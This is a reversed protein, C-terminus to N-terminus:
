RARETYDTTIHISEIKVKVPKFRKPDATAKAGEIASKLDSFLRIGGDHLTLIDSSPAFKEGDLILTWREEIM